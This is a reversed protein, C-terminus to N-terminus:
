CRRRSLAFGLTGLAPLKAGGTQSKHKIWSWVRARRAIIHSRPLRFYQYSTWILYLSHDQVARGGLQWTGVLGPGMTMCLLPYQLFRVSAFHRGSQFRFGNSGTLLIPDDPGIVLNNEHM